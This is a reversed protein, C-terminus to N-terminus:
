HIVRVEIDLSRSHLVVPYLSGVFESGYVHYINLPNMSSCGRGTREEHTELLCSESVCEIGQLPGQDNM